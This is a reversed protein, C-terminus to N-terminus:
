GRCFIVKLMKVFFNKHYLGQQHILFKEFNTKCKKLSFHPLYISETTLFFAHALVYTEKTPHSSQSCQPHHHEYTTGSILHLNAAHLVSLCGVQSISGLVQTRVLFVVGRGQSIGRSGSSLARSSWELEQVALHPGIAEGLCQWANGQFCGNWGLPCPPGPLQM